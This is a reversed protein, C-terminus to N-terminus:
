AYLRVMGDKGVRANIAELSQGECPGLICRGTDIQFQAGHGHCVIVSRAADLYEDKRWALPAHDVHPCANQYAFVQSGRRVVFVSDRGKRYPDFGCSYGDRLQDLACLDLPGGSSSTTV